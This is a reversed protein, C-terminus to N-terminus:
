IKLKKRLERDIPANKSWYKSKITRIKKATTTNIKGNKQIQEEWGEIRFPFNNQFTIKLTRKLEPYAISYISKDNEQTLSMQATYAKIKKHHLALFEFSPIIKESGIPLNKPSMRLMNWLEDELTHKSLSIKRDTNTEFYSKFDIQYQKRNNLQVFTNGCWEQNSFTIKLAHNEKKIPSFTSTMISYPYIGTIFKKTKNLKLIPINDNSKKDAKVQKEPLFDETVFVTVADGKHQSGYRAQTLEYSTIEAYGDYWYANFKKNKIPVPIKAEITKNQITQPKEQCSIFGFLLFLYGIKKM